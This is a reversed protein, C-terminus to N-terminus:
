YDCYSYQIQIPPHNKGAGPTRETNSNHGGWRESVGGCAEGIQGGVQAEPQLLEFLEPAGDAAQAEEHHLLIPSAASSSSGVVM